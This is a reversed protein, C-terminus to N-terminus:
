EENRIHWTKVIEDTFIFRFINFFEPRSIVRKWTMNDFKNGCKECVKSPFVDHWGCEPCVFREMWKGSSAM